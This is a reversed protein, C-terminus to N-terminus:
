DRYSALNVLVADRQQQPSSSYQVTPVSDQNGPETSVLYTGLLLVLAASAMALRRSFASQLLASWISAGSQQEIQDLVRAYFGPRPEIGAPARLARLHLAHEGLARVEEACKPCAALHTTFERPLRPNGSGLEGSGFGKLYEELNERIPQHM